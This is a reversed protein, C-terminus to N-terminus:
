CRMRDGHRAQRVAVYKTDKNTNQTSGLFSHCAGGGGKNRDRSGDRDEARASAGKHAKDVSCTSIFGGSPTSNLVKLQAGTGGGRQERNQVCPSLLLSVVAMSVLNWAKSKGFIAEEGGVAVLVFCFM